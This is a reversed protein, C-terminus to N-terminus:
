QAAVHTPLKSQRFALFQDKEASHRSTALPIGPLIRATCAKRLSGTRNTKAPSPGSSFSTRPLRCSGNPHPQPRTIIDRQQQRRTVDRHEGRIVLAGGIVEPPQPPPIAQQRSTGTPPIRAGPRLGPISSLKGGRGRGQFTGDSLGQNVVQPSRRPGGPHLLIDPGMVM